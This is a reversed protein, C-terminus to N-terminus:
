GEQPVLTVLVADRDFTRGVAVHVQDVVGDRGAKLATELKMSEIVILVDGVKVEQGASVPTAIVTGPMPAKMVDEASGGAEEAYRVVPDRYIIEHAEGDLQVYVREGDVAIFVATQTGGCTLVQKRGEGSLAGSKLSVPTRAGDIDLQYGGGARALWLSHDNEDILFLHRM